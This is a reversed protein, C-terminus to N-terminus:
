FPKILALGEILEIGNDGAIKRSVAEIDARYVDKPSHADSGIIGKCGEEGAIKWFLSNPYNRNTMIGLQNIELPIDRERAAQCLKRMWKEYDRDSGTFYFLDPHCLYTFRGTDLAEITQKVYRELLRVDDTAEGNYHEMVENGLFHQGLILYEIPQEKIFDLFSDFLEPYYEAELGLHINIRDKYEEKLRLVEKCYGEFLEPRMRYTSYYGATKFIYPCHDSFGLKRMGSEIASLVYEEEEGSAHNCRPTHTHYNDYM